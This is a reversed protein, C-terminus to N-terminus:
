GERSLVFDVEMMQYHSAQMGLRLYIDQARSNDRDVYLRLGRAGNSRAQTEIARFLATFVGKGRAEPIVYVSQLWWVDGNRWDSWETTVMAQGILRGDREAVFYRGRSADEFIASVGATLREHDLALSETESAIAANFAVIKEIDEPRASRVAPAESM